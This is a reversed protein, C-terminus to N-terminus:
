VKHFDDARQAIAAKLEPLRNFSRKAPRADRRSDGELARLAGARDVKARVFSFHLDSEDAGPRRNVGNRHGAIRDRNVNETLAV